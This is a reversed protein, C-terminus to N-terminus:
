PEMECQSYALPRLKEGHGKEYPKRLAKLVHLKDELAFSRFSLPLWLAKEM